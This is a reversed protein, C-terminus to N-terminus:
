SARRARRQAGGRYAALPPRRPQRGQPDRRALHAALDAIAPHSLLDRTEIDLGDAQLRAVIRFVDLSDAGLRFLTAEPDAREPGLVEAWVAAIRAEIGPRPARAPPAAQGAVVEPAPAVEPVELAKRDLKGNATQPLAELEVWGQPVMYDPLRDRLAATLAARDPAPADPEPVIWAVLRDHGGVSRKDVAAAKVGDLARLHSEIEGLEIRYGRLKVQGDRRGLVAIEGSPLRRALDGTRYLRRRRGALAVEVFATETLDDRGFYGLALGDGGIWLEGVAGPPLLGGADDLVHLETNAIPGGITVPGGPRLRRVASWVTTETPGYMNWLDAGNAMLREALDAPMPEGGALLKVGRPAALGAELLLGFLTPTGQLVNARASNVAEVVPAGALVEDRTAVRVTGGALLPGFLELVSIDFSV